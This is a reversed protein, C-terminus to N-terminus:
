FRVPRQAPGNATIIRGGLGGAKAPCSIVRACSLPPLSRSVQPQRADAGDGAEDAHDQLKQLDLTYLALTREALRKEYRVHDLYRTILDM